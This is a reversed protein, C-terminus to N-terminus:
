IHILSLTIYIKRKSIDSTESDGSTESSYGKDQITSVAVATVINEEQVPPLTSDQIDDEPTTDELAPVAPTSSDALSDLILEKSKNRRTNRGLRSDGEPVKKPPM